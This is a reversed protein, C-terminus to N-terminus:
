LEITRPECRLSFEHIAGESITSGSHSLSDIYQHLAPIPQISYPVSKCTQFDSVIKALMECKEINALGKGVQCPNAEHMM